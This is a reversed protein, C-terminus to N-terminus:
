LYKSVEKLERLLAGVDAGERTLGDHICHEIHDQIFAKRANVLANIVAHLQQAAEPCPRGGEIMGIVRELHGAARKLRSLVEPHSAHSTMPM